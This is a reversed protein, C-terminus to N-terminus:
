PRYSCVLSYVWASAKTPFCTMITPPPIEAMCSKPSIDFTVSVVQTVRRGGSKLSSSNVDSKPRSATAMTSFLTRSPRGGVDTTDTVPKGMVGAILSINALPVKSWLGINVSIVSVPTRQASPVVCSASTIKQFVPKRWEKSWRAGSCSMFSLFPMTIDPFNAVCTALSRRM